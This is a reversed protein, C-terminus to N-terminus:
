FQWQSTIATLHLLLFLNEFSWISRGVAKNIRLPIQSINIATFINYIIRLADFRNEYQVLRMYENFIKLYKFSFIEVWTFIM